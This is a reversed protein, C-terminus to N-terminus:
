WVSLNPIRMLILLYALTILPSNSMLLIVFINLSLEGKVYNTQNFLYRSFHKKNQKSCFIKKM